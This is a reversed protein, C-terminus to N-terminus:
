EPFSSSAKSPGGGKLLVAATSAIYKDFRYSRFGAVLIAIFGVCLFGSIVIWSFGLFYGVAATLIWAIGSGGLMRVRGAYWHLDLGGTQMYVYAELPTAREHILGKLSKYELVKALYAKRRERFVRRIIWTRVVSFMESLISGIVVAAAIIVLIFIAVPLIGFDKIAKVPSDGFYRNIPDNYRVIILTGVSGVFVIGPLLFALM